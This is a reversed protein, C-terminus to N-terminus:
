FAFFFLLMVEAPLFPDQERSFRGFSCVVPSVNLTLIM